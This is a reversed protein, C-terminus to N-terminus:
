AKPKISWFADAEAATMTNFYHKKIIAESNGAELAAEGLSKWKAVHASIFTHRLVDPTLGFRTRISTAHGELGPVEIPYDKIPYKTLWAVLAPRIVIQRLDNTKSIEPLIRIVGLDLNLLRTLAPHRSLKVIEGDRASPRIGAFTCLAFYPILFGPKQPNRAGGTYTELFTFVEQIKEVTAIDPLGRSVEKQPIEEIPNKLVWRRADHQCYTFFSGFIGRVNNWTKDSWAQASMYALVLAADVAHVARTATVYDRLRELQRRAEDNHRQVVGGSHQAIFATVAEGFPKEVAPPRYNKLFWDVALTLSKDGLRSFAAEATAVQEVTLRTLISRVSGDNAAEVELRNKEGLAEDQSKFQRRIRQGHLYGTLRYTPYKFRNARVMVRKIAFLPKM